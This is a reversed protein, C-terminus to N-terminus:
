PWLSEKEGECLGVFGGYAPKRIAKEIDALERSAGGFEYLTGGSDKVASKVDEYCGNRKVSGGGYIFLVRKGATLRKLEEAPNRRFFLKTDNRLQFDMM